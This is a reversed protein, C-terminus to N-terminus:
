LEGVDVVRAPIYEKLSPFSSQARTKSALQVFSAWAKMATVARPKDIAMMETLIKAQLRKEPRQKQSTAKDSATPTENELVGQRFMDILSDNRNNNNNSQEGENDDLLTEM